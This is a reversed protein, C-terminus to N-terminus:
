NSGRQAAMMNNANTNQAVVKGDLRLQVNGAQALLKRDYPSLEVIMSTPTSSSGGVYGGQAFSRPMEMFYPVKTVQNVQEKPVVYEGRHVIGAPEYKGGAGTYGGDAFGTITRIIRRATSGSGLLGNLFSSIGGSVNSGIASGVSSANVGAPYRADNVNGAVRGPINLNNSLGANVNAASNQGLAYSTNNVAGGQASISGPITGSKQAWANAVDSAAKSGISSLSGYAGVTAPYQSSISGPIAAMNNTFSTRVNNSSSSGADAVARFKAITSDSYRAFDTTMGTTTGSSTSYINRWDRRISEAGTNSKKYLSEWVPITETIKDKYLGTERRGNSIATAVNNAEQEAGGFDVGSMANEMGDATEQTKALLENLATLAPNTDVEITVNREVNNVAFAVDDFASAYKELETSSYGLAEGQALFDAKAKAVAARLEDQKMGSSALSKIYAEYDSVLGIIQSRNEIAADSNGVLTKNTKDQANQLSKNKSILEEDIKALNARIEQARLTDGYAEAVSLFYEQLAKDATLSQIDANLRSIEERADATSKAMSSFSKAIKDLATGSSFRIDFARSFVSSLDNAYDILTRIKAAAKGATGGGSGSGINTFEKNVGATSKKLADAKAQADAVTKAWKSTGKAADNSSAAAGAMGAAVGGVVALAIGIGSLLLAVRLATLAATATSASVTVGTLSSIINTISAIFSGTAAGKISAIATALALSGGVATLTIAVLGALAGVLVTVATATGIFFGGWNSSAFEGIGVVVNKLIDIIGGFVPALTQGASDALNAIANQLFQIKSALDDAKDAFAETLFTNQQFGESAFGQAQTVKDFGSAMKSLVQEVRTADLGLADLTARLQTSDMGQLSGALKTFFDPMNTQALAAAEEATMGLLMAYNQLDQGGALVSRNIDSFIQTLGSRALEPAIGLSAMATALGVVEEASYGAIAAVGSIQGAVSLIQAETAASKSGAYAVASAFQNYDNETLNLVNGIKGFSEAASENSVNAVASFQTVTKTFETLSDQNIGLQAGLKTVGAIDEFTMPIQLALQKLEERLNATQQVNLDTVREVGTFATEYQVTTDLVNKGFALLTQSTATFGSSVDYLAYRLRPLTNILERDAAATAQMRARMSALEDQRTKEELANRSKNLFQANEIEREVRRRDINALEDARQKARAVRENDYKQMIANNEAIEKRQQASLKAEDARAKEKAKYEDAVSNARLKKLFEQQAIADKVASEAYGIELKGRSKDIVDDLGAKIDGLTAKVGAAKLGIQINKLSQTSYKIDNAAKELQKFASVAGGVDAGIVIKVDENAM